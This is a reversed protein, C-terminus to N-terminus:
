IPPTDCKSAIDPICMFKMTISTVNEISFIVFSLLNFFFNVINIRINYAVIISKEGDAILAIIIAFICISEIKSNLDSLKGTFM